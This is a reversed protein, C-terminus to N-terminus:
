NRFSVGACFSSGISVDSKGLVWGCQFASLNYFVNESSCWTLCQFFAM